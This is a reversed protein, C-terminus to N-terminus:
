SAVDPVLPMRAQVVFGGGVLSRAALTGGYLRLREALGVLGAGTGPGGRSPSRPAENSVDVVLEDGEVEVTVSTRAGPAYRLANTLAEQVVRYATLGIAVPLVLGDPVGLRVPQGTARVSEVLAPIQALGPQPALVETHDLAVPGTGGDEATSHTLVGLLHRLEGMAERGSSEVAVMAGRALDPHSDLVQAAAGAQITMVSVHHSVVDHLERAIRAREEAVAARTAQEQARALLDARQQHAQARLRAARLAIGALGVPLLLVFPALTSPINPTNKAFSAALAAAVVTLIGLALVPRRMAAAMTAAGILMAVLSFVTLTGSAAVAFVGACQVVFAALPWLGRVALPLTVIVNLAATVHNRYSADAAVMEPGPAVAPVAIGRIHWSFTVRAPEQADGVQAEALWLAAVSLALALLLDGRAVRLGAVPRRLWAYVVGNHRTTRTGADMAHDIRSGRETSLVGSTTGSIAV